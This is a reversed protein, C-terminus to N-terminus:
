SIKRAALVAGSALIAASGIWVLSILPVIYFDVVASTFDRSFSRVAIYYDMWPYSILEVSSISKEEREIKYIYMKPTVIGLDDVKVKSVVTFKEADEEFNVDLLTFKMGAAEDSPDLHLEYSKEFFWVSTSGVFLLVVGLHLILRVSRFKKVNYVILAAILGYVPVFTVLYYMRDVSVVVNTVTGLFVAVIAAALLFPVYYYWTKVGESNKLRYFAAMAAIMFILYFWGSHSEGFTHVSQIIGSRTIFAAFIVLVFSLYAFADRLKGSSHFYATLALWPLLSANEVPDWGWFGGWGLTKYAWWGGLIIGLSLFLWALRAWRKAEGQLGALHLAYPLAALAYGLFVVPPHMMMELTRLLPNLGVGDSPTFPLLVFPNSLFYNIALIYSSISALILSAKLKREDKSGSSIYIAAAILTFLSWLLLSGERGAWVASFKYALPMPKHSNAYVYFITFNDTLFYYTLVLFSILCFSLSAYLLIEAIEATRADRRRISHFFTIASLLSTILSLLLSIGGIEM